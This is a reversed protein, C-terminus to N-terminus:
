THACIYKHTYIRAYVHQKNSSPEPRMSSLYEHAQTNICAYTNMYIHAGLQHTHMHQSSPAPTNSSSVRCALQLSLSMNVHVYARLMRLLTAGLDVALKSAVARAAVRVVDGGWSRSPLSLGRTCTCSFACLYIMCYARSRAHWMLALGAGPM